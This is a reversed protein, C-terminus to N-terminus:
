DGFRMERCFGVKVAEESHDKLDESLFKLQKHFQFTTKAEIKPCVPDLGKLARVLENTRFLSGVVNKKSMLNFAKDADAVQM